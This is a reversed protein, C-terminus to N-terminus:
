GDLPAPNLAGEVMTVFHDFLARRGIGFAAEFNTERMRLIKVVGFVQGWLLLMLQRPSLDSRIDGDAMGAEIAATVMRAMDASAKQCAHGYGAPAAASADGHYVFYRSEYIMILDLHEPHDSAFDFFAEAMRRLAGHRSGTGEIAEALRQRLLKLGRRVVALFLDDKDKFYLYLTRKNYGAAAAIAPLTTKDYGNEFFVAQAKDVIRESRQRQEWAKRDADTM